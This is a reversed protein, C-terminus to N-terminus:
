IQLIKQLLDDATSMVRANAAYAQEVILLKQMEADTDVGQALDAARLQEAQTASFGLAAETAHSRRGVASLFEGALATASRGTASFGGSGTARPSHLAGQMATLLSGNGVPGPALAGLGDRLRWLAGGQQPDALANIALRTSLGEENAVSLANGGDTFLGATGAALTADLGPDQFREVLDRAVADIKTQLEPALNDRVEFKAALSGGHMLGSDAEVAIPQGNLTLASLSGASLSMDHTIVPTATFGLTAPTDDLLLAGGPTFLAVKGYDRAIQRLPVIESLSNITQQRLDMLPSPDRGSANAEQIARNLSHVRQLGDNLASIDQAIGADAQMRAGQIGGAIGGIQAVLDRAAGAASELRADSAPNAAAQILASEFAAYRGSLSWGDSPAGIVEKLGTFFDALTQDRGQAAEALRRDEVLVENVERSVGDISVGASRGLAQASLNLQRVGYGETNANAVNSSILEVARSAATLGSRANQLAGSISM